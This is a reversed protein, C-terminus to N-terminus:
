AALAAMKGDLEIRVVEPRPTRAQLVRALGETSCGVDLIRRAGKPILKAVDHRPGTYSACFGQEQRRSM